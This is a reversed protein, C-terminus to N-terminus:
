VGERANISVPAHGDVDAGADLDPAAEQRRQVRAVDEAPAHGPAAVPVPHLAEEPYLTRKRAVAGDGVIEIGVALGIDAVARREPGADADPVAAALVRRASMGFVPGAGPRPTTRPPATTTTRATAGASCMPPRPRRTTTTTTPGRGAPTTTTTPGPAPGTRHLAAGRAPPRPVSRAPARRAGQARRAPPGAPAASPRPHGRRPHARPRPPPPRRPARLRANQHHHTTFSLSRTHTTPGPPPASPPLLRRRRYKYRRMCPPLRALRPIHVLTISPECGAGVPLRLSRPNASRSPFQM